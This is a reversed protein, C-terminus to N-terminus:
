DQKQRWLLRGTNGDIEFGSGSLYGKFVTKELWCESDKIKRHLRLCHWISRCGGLFLALLTLRVGM